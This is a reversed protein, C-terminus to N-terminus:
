SATTSVTSTIKTGSAPRFTIACAATITFSFPRGATPPRRSRSCRVAVGTARHFSCTSKCWSRRPSTASSTAPGISAGSKKVPHLISPSLDTRPSSSFMRKVLPCRPPSRRAQLQGPEDHKKWLSRDAHTQRPLPWPTATRVAQSFSSESALSWRRSSLCGSAPPVQPRFNACSCTRPGCSRPTIPASGEPLASIGAASVAYVLDGDVSPTSRPGNGYEREHVGKPPYLAAASKMAPPPMGASSQKRWRTRADDHLTTGSHRRRLRAGLASRSKGFSNDLGGDPWSTLLNTETSIGDRNPGRWQPWDTRTSDAHGLSQLALQQLQPENARDHDHRRHWYATWDSPPAFWSRSPRGFM